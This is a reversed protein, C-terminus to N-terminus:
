PVPLINHTGQLRSKCNAAMDTARRGLFSSILYALNIPKKLQGPYIMIAKILHRRALRMQRWYLYSLGATLHYGGYVQSKLRRIERPLEPNAFTKDLIYLREPWFKDAEGVSKTGPYVRFNALHRNLYNTKLRLGIRIWLDLDMAFHLSTDVYGVENLAQKRLFVAPQAVMNDGCLMKGLDFEKTLHTGTIESREDIVNCGGYVMAVETHETFYEVATGVAWPMYTDDSNLYALIDGKAMRWGKNIADSQGSDSESVWRMNYAGEYKKIIDLTNDTSGGDIIIHEINSYTQNKVSLITEEIFRGQNLSPTVISVLPLEVAM